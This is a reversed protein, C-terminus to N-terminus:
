QAAVMLGLAHIAITQVQLHCQHRCHRHLDGQVYHCELSPRVVMMVERGRVVNETSSQVRYQQDRRLVILPKIAAKANILFIKGKSQFILIELFQNELFSVDIPTYAGQAAGCVGTAANIDGLRDVGTSSEEMTSFGNKACNQFMVLGIFSTYIILLIKNM